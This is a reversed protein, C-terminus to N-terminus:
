ATKDARRTKRGGGPRLALLAAGAALLAGQAGWVAPPLQFAPDLTGLTLPYRTFFSGNWVSLAGPLPLALLVLPVLMWVYVLWPRLRGLLWGSGLAFVLPPALTVLAPLLLSGWGYWQFYGGYFLAAEGLCAVALLVAGALAAACRALAYRGPEMPAADTLVAARRAKGSTFFTLFFLSGIWLLPLMRSLYDGFSWPSFPATHSVGLITAGTLVQWGYFLLVLLLGFFFKNWLLRKCEYLFINRM